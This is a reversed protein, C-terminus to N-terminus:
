LTKIMNVNKLPLNDDSHFKIKIYKKNYNDSNNTISRILVTIKNWLEGYKKTDKREATPVITLYKNGSSKEIYRNLKYIVLYLPKVSNTTAYSLDKM